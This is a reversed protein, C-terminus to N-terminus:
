LKGLYKGVILGVGGSVLVLAASEHNQIESLDFWGEGSTYQKLLLLFALGFLLVGLIEPVYKSM